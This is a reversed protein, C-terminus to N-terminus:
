HRFFDYGLCGQLNEKPQLEQVLLPMLDVSVDLRFVNQYVRVAEYFQCVEPNRLLQKFREVEAPTEHPSERVHTWLSQLAVRVPVGEGRVDPANPQHDVFQGHADMREGFGSVVHM